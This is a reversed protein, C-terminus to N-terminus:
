LLNFYSVPQARQLPVVNLRNGELRLQNTTLNYVRVVINTTILVRARPPVSGSGSGGALRASREEGDCVPAVMIGNIPCMVILDSVHLATFSPVKDISRLSQIRIRNAAM